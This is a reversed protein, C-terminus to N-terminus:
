TSSCPARSTTAALEAVWGAVDDVTVTAPDRDGFTRRREQARLPLEEEHETSTSRSALFQRGLPSRSDTRTAQEALARLVDAPNRGAALEGAILDRRVRGGEDDPVRRRAPGPLRPRRAPLPRRVEEGGKTKRVTITASAM